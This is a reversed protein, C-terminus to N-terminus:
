GHSRPGNEHEGTLKEGNAISDVAGFRGTGVPGSIGM